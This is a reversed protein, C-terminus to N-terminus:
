KKYFYSSLTASQLGHRQGLRRGKGFRLCYMFGLLLTFVKPEMDKVSAVTDTAGEKMPGFLEAKFVISRAALVCRHAMFKEGGVEFTV